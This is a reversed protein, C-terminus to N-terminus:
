ANVESASSVAEEFSMTITTVWNQDKNKQIYKLFIIFIGIYIYIQNKKAM